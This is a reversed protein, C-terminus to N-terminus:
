HYWVQVNHFTELIILWFKWRGDLAWYKCFLFQISSKENKPSILLCLSDLSLYARFTLWFLSINQRNLFTSLLFSTQRQFTKFITKWIVSFVNEWVLCKALSGNQFSFDTPQCSSFYTLQLKVQDNGSQVSWFFSFSVTIVTKHDLCLM